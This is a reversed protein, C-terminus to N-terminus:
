LKYNEFEIQKEQLRELYFRKGEDQNQKEKELM